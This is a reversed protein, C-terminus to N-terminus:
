AGPQEQVEATPTFADRLRALVLLDPTCESACGPPCWGYARPGADLARLALTPDAALLDAHHAILWLVRQLGRVRDAYADVLADVTQQRM